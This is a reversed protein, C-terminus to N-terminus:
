GGVCCDGGWKIRQLAGRRQRREVGEMEHHADGSGEGCSQRAGDAVHATILL